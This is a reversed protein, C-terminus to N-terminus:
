IKLYQSYIESLMKNRLKYSHSTKSFEKAINGDNYCDIPNNIYFLIAESLSKISENFIGNNKDISLINHFDNFTKWKIGYLKPNYFYYPMSIIKAFKNFFNLHYEFSIIAQGYSMAEYINAGGHIHTSAILVQTETFLQHKEINNLPANKHIIIDHNNKITDLIEQPINPCAIHLLSNKRNPISIWSKIVLDVGKSFFDSALCLFNITNKKEIIIENDNYCGPQPILVIKENFENKFYFNFIKKVGECTMIIKVCKPNAYISRAFDIHQLVLYPEAINFKGSIVSLPHDNIEIIFNKNFSMKPYNVWHYLNANFYNTFKIPPDTYYINYSPHTYLTKYRFFVGSNFNFRKIVQIIIFFYNKFKNFLNNKITYNQIAM